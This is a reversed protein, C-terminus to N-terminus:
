EQDSERVVRFCRIAFGGEIAVGLDSRLLDAVTETHWYEMADAVM